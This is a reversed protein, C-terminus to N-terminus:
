RKRLKISFDLLSIIDNELVIDNSRYNLILGSVQEKEMILSFLDAVSIIRVYESDSCQFSEGSTYAM